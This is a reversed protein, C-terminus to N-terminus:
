RSDVAGARERGDATPAPCGTLFSLADGGVVADVADGVVLAGVIDDVVGDGRCAIVGDVVHHAVAYAFTSDDDFDVARGSAVDAVVADKPMREAGQGAVVSCLGEVWARPMKAARAADESGCRQWIAQHCLEHALRAVVDDGDRRQWSALTLLDVRNYRSWARVTEHLQGTEAVFADASAHVVVDVEASIQLGRRSVRDCAQPV